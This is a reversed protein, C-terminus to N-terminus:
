GDATTAGIDLSPLEIAAAVFRLELRYRGASLGDIRFSGLDDLPQVRLVDGDPGALHAQGADDPGLM